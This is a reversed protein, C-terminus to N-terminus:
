HRFAPLQQKHKTATGPGQYFALENQQSKFYNNELEDYQVLAAVTHLHSGM